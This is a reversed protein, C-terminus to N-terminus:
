ASRWNPHAMFAATTEQDTRAGSCYWLMALRKGTESLDGISDSCLTKCGAGAGDGRGPTKNQQTM